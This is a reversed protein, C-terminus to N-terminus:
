NIINFIYIFDIYLVFDNVHVYMIFYIYIYILKLSELTYKWINKFM